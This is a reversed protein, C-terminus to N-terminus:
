WVRPAWLLMARSIEISKLAPTISIEEVARAQAELENRAEDLERKWQKQVLAIKEMFDAEEPSDAERPSSTKGTTINYLEQGWGIGADGPSDVGSDEDREERERIDKEARERIQDIRRRFTSELRDALNETKEDALELCRAIFAERSEGPESAVDFSHNEFVILRETEALFERFGMEADALAAVLGDDEPSVALERTADPDATLALRSTDLARGASWDVRERVTDIPAIRTREVEHHISLAGNEFTLLGEVLLFPKYPGEHDTVLYLQQLQEGEAAGRSRRSFVFSRQVVEPSNVVLGTAVPALELTRGGTKAIAEIVAARSEKPALFVICGGGGAGCVKGGWAGAKTAARIAKDIQPTAVGDILTRRAKWEQSLAEGAAEPDLADLAKELSTAAAAIRGLGRAVEAEGDLHRKYIEWNNTGSFHSVGTYHVIMLEALEGLPFRMPHRTARGPELHIAGLGGYVAPYYDQIGAPIGLLRTELDRVLAILNEGEIPEGAFESLARVVAVALASSGGLGSGRPAETRTVITIGTSHFHEVAKAVLAMKPDEAMEGISEYTRHYDEDGLRVEISADERPSVDCEAWLSVAVNVTRAGPHFLYLPWLDLTGGALDVRVPVRVSVNKM